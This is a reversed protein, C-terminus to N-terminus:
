IICLYSFPFLGREIHPLIHISEILLSLRLQSGLFLECRKFGIKLSFMFTFHFDNLQTWSRTVGHVIYDTSNELGSYQLPYCKREGPSRGLEPILFLDGMNCSSEKGASAYPFGLFVPTPLRDRRWRIMRVWSDLRPKQMAPLNKVLQAILSTRLSYM